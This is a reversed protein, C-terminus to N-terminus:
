VFYLFSSISFHIIIFILFFNFCFPVASRLMTIQIRFFVLLKILIVADSIKKGYWSHEIVKNYFRVINMKCIYLYISKRAKLNLFSCLGYREM